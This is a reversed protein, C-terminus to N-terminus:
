LLLNSRANIVSRFHTFELVIWRKIKAADTRNDSKLGYYELLESVNIFKLAINATELIAKWDMVKEAELAQLRAIYIPLHDPSEKVLEEYVATRLEPTDLSM